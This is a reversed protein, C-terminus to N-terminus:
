SGLLFKEYSHGYAVGLFSGLNVVEHLGSFRSCMRVFNQSVLPPVLSTGEHMCTAVYLRIYIENTYKADCSSHYTKYAM